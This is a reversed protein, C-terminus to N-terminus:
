LSKESGDSLCYQLQGHCTVASYSMEINSCNTSKSELTRRERPSNNTERRKVNIIIIDPDPNTGEQSVEIYKYNGYKCVIRSGFLPM